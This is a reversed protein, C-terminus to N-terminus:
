VWFLKGGEGNGGIEKEQLIEMRRFVALRQPFEKIRSHYTDGGAYLRGM